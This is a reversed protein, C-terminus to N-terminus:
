KKELKKKTPHKEVGKESILGLADKANFPYRHVSEQGTTSLSIDVRRNNALVIVPLNNLMKQREDETLEPNDHIQQTVQDATLEDEKGFSRVDISGAPVGHAILFSKSREVRRETLRKNFDESGRSDAHGGLILHADPKFTLYRNFGTALTALVAEQSPMLGGEPNKETPRATQFYISHLSLKIELEKVEAPPEPPPPPAEVAVTTTASASLSPTRDDSVTCTVTIPGPQTGSANFSATADTGSINGATAQYSYTLKRNDSSSANSRITATGGIQISQPDSLCSIQPPRPQKVTFSGSCSAMGDKSGDTLNATVQYPGPQLGTTDVQSSADTGAIKVAPGSWSYRVTRRFGTGSARFTVGEGAFVESPEVSCSASPPVPAPGGGWMFNLGSQLRVGRIETASTSASPGYRYNSYIYDARLPRLAFHRSLNIDLGGGAMFGLKNINHFAQPMLRQDGVLVELFPSFRHHRFTFKPGLSLNSFGADDIRKANGIEDNGWHTSSDVTIGAWRNFDLTLSAGVGRPNIEIRSGVPLIGGPLVGHVDAGPQFVSYGGFFEWRPGPQDQAEALSVLGCLLVVVALQSVAVRCCSNQSRSSM